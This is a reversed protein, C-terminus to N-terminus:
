FRLIYSLTAALILPGTPKPLTGFNTLVINSHSVKVNAKKPCMGDNVVETLLDNYLRLVISNRCNGSIGSLCEAFGDLKKCKEERSTLSDLLGQAGQSAHPSCIKARENLVTICQLEEQSGFIAAIEFDHECVFDMAPEMIEQVNALGEKERGNLCRGITEFAQDSCTLLEAKRRCVTDIAEKVGRTKMATVVESRLDEFKTCVVLQRGIDLLDAAAQDGATNRCRDAIGLLVNVMPPMPPKAAVAVALVLVLLQGVM